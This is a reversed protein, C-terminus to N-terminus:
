CRPAAKRANSRWDHALTSRIAAVLQTDGAVPAIDLLGVAASLDNSAVSRCEALTRVSHDLRLKADWIPYWLRDAFTVLDGTPTSRGDHLVLDLDSLPAPEERGLSGVAALALGPTARGPRRPDLGGAAVDAHDSIAARRVEGAGPATFARTGALDLPGGVDGSARM